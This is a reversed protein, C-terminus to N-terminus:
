FYVFEQLYYPNFPGLSLRGHSPLTGFSLINSGGKGLGDVHFHASSKKLYLIVFYFITPQCPDYNNIVKSCLVKCLM